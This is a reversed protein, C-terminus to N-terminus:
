SEKYDDSMVNTMVGKLEVRIECTDDGRLTDRVIRCETQLQVMELAGRLAGVLVNNYQLDAFQPPLEVFDTLPNDIIILSFATNEANWNSVDATVGLFMKFAVKAIIEATERFNQCNSVGTKALFEDIARIGINYGIKDIQQNVLEIDEFDRILQTVFAGYTLTFLESNKSMRNWVTDGLRKQTM